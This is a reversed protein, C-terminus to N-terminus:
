PAATKKGTGDKSQRGERNKSWERIGGKEGGNKKTARKLRRDKEGPKEDRREEITGDSHRHM